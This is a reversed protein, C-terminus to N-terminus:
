RFWKTFAKISLYAFTCIVTIKLIILFQWLFIGWLAINGGTKILEILANLIAQDM